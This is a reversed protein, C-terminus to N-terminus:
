RITMEAGLPKYKRRGAREFLQITCDGDTESIHNDAEAAAEDLTDCPKYWGAESDALLYQKM